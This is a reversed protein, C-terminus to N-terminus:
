NVALSVAAKKVDRNCQSILDIIFRWGCSDTAASHAQVQSIVFGCFYVAIMTMPHGLNSNARDLLGRRGPMSFNRAWIIRSCFLFNRVFVHRDKESVWASSFFVELMLRHYRFCRTSTNLKARCESSTLSMGMLRLLEGKSRLNASPDLRLPFAFLLRFFDQHIIYCWGGRVYVSLIM